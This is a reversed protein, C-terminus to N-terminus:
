LSCMLPEENDDDELEWRQATQQDNTGVWVERSPDRSEELTVGSRHMARLKRCCIEFRNALDDLDCAADTLDELVFFGRFTPFTAEVQGNRDTM